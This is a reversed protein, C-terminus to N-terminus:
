LQKGKRSVRENQDKTSAFCEEYYDVEMSGCSGYGCLVMAREFYPGKVIAIHGSKFVVKFKKTNGM